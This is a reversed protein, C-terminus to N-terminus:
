PTGYYVGGYSVQSIWTSANPYVKQLKVKKGSLKLTLNENIRSNGAAKYLNVNIIGNTRQIITGITFGEQRARKLIASAGSYKKLKSETLYSYGYYKFKSGTWKVYYKKYTHGTGLGNDVQWDFAGLAVSFQRGKLQVLGQGAWSAKKLKGKKVYFCYSWSDSGGASAEVLFLKQSASVKVVRKPMNQYFIIGRIDCQKVEKESAFWLRTDGNTGLIAFIEKSGDMDFDDYYSTLVATRDKAQIKSLLQSKSGAFVYSALLLSFLLSSLASLLIRKKNM